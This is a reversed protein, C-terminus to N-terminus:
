QSADSDVWIRYLVEEGVHMVAELRAVSGFELTPEPGLAYYYIPAVAAIDPLLAILDPNVSLAFFTHIVRRDPFFVKDKRVTVIVSEPETVAMVTAATQKYGKIRERVPLLSDAKAILTLTASQYGAFLLLLLLVVTAIKKPLFTGFWLAGM